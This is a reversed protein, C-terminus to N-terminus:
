AGSRLVWVRAQRTSPAKTPSVLELSPASWIMMGSEPDRPLCITRPISSHGSPTRFLM